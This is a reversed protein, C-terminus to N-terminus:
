PTLVRPFVQRFQRRYGSRAIFPYVPSTLPFPFPRPHAGPEAQQYAVGAATGTIPRGVRGAQDWSLISVKDNLLVITSGTEQVPVALTGLAADLADAIESAAAEDTTAATLDVEFQGAVHAYGATVHM